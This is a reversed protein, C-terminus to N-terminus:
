RSHTQALHLLRRAQEAGAVPLSAADLLGLQVLLSAQDWYIHEHHVKGNEFGVAVAHALEVRRGTPAVGPLMFPMERDHTFTVVVEDVVRDRGVTRSVRTVETDDPWAPIFDEGYFRRVEDRGVGGTLTPVHFLYPDSAMTSMTRDLDHAEFEAGLHDDLVDAIDADHQAM